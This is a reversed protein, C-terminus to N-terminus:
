EAKALKEQGSPSSDPRHDRCLLDGLSSRLYLLGDVIVPPTWCVGGELAKTRSRERFGESTADAVLLEGDESLIILRGGAPLGRQGPWAPALAGWLVCGAIKSRM